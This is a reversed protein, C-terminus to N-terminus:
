GADAAGEGPPPSNLLHRHTVVWRWAILRRHLYAAEGAARLAEYLADLLTHYLEVVAFM